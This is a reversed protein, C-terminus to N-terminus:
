REIPTLSGSQFVRFVYDAASEKGTKKEEAAATELERAVSRDDLRERLVEYGLRDRYVIEDTEFDYEPIDPDEWRSQFYRVLPMYLGGQRDRNRFVFEPVAADPGAHYHRVCAYEGLVAMTLLPADPYLKLRIKKRYARLGRLFEIGSTIQERVAQSDSGQVSGHETMLDQERPDLLMVRAERCKLLAQHLDGEPDSFSRGTSGILMIEHVPGIEEKMARSKRASGRQRSCTLGAPVLGACEATMALRRYDWARKIAHFLLVLLVAATVEIGAVAAQQHRLLALSRPLDHALDRLAYPLAFALGASATIVFVHYLIYSSIKKM